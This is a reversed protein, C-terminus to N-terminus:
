QAEQRIRQKAAEWDEAVEEGRQVAKERDSLVKDHWAPSNVKDAHSVLDDWLAEMARLKEQITM